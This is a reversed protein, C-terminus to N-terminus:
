HLLGCTKFSRSIKDEKKLMKSWVTDLWKTILIRKKSVTTKGETYNVLNEGIHQELLQWIIDKFTYQYLNSFRSIDEDECSFLIGFIECKFVKWTRLYECTLYTFLKNVFMSFCYLSIFILRSKLFNVFKVRLCSQSNKPNLFRFKWPM